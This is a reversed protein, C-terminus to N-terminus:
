TSSTGTAAAVFHDMSKFRVIGTPMVAEVAGGDLVRYPHGSYVGDAPFTGAAPEPARPAEWPAAVPTVTPQPPPGIRPMALLLLGAILPSTVLALLFWGGFSRGRTNAGVGVIISFVVWALVVEM